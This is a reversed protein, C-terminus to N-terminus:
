SEIEAHRNAAAQAGASAPLYGLAALTAHLGEQYSPYRFRFGTELLAGPDARADRCMLEALVRGALLRALFLPVRRPPPAAMLSAACALFRDQRVAIGDTAVFTRGRLSERERGALHVLARAADVVHIVSLRNNGAGIIPMRGRALKPLVHEAFGKGPGYVIGLHVHCAPVGAAEVRQRVPLGVHAFGLPQRRLPSRHSLLGREDPLLDDLGSVNFYLPRQAAPLSRVADLLAQTVSQRYRSVARIARMGLRVPLRPQILDICVDAGGAQAIWAAPTEADGRIVHAGCHALAAAGEESRALAKVSWGAAVAERALERGIFGTGGLLFLLKSM